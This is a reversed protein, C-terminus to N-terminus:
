GGGGLGRMIYKKLQFRAPNHTSGYEADEICGRVTYRSVPDYSALDSQNDRREYGSAVVEIRRRRDDVRVHELGKM